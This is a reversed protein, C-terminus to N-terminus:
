FSPIGGATLHGVDQAANILVAGAPATDSPFVGRYIKADKDWDEQPAAAGSKPYGALHVTLDGMGLARVPIGCRFAAAEGKLAAAATKGQVELIEAPLIDEKDWSLDWGEAVTDLAFVNEINTKFQADVKVRRCIELASESLIRFDEGAQAWIVMQAAIVKKSELRVAKVDSEGLIEAIPNGTMLRLGKEALLGALWEAPAPELIEPLLREQPMVLVVEKGRRWFAAAIQLGRFSECQIVVTEALPLVDLIQNVEKLKKFSFVGNKHVGKIEPLKIQPLDTLFLVDYDFQRRDEATIRNKRLNIKSVEADLVVQVRHREYFNKPRCFIQEYEAEKALLPCLLNRDYPYNGDTSLLTIPSESDFLRIEEIAKVGAASAGLIVIRRM